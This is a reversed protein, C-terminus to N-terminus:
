AVEEQLKKILFEGDVETLAKFWQSRFFRECDSKLRQGKLRTPDEKLIKLAERYDTAAQVIIAKALEEYPDAVPLKEKNKSM